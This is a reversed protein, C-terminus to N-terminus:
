PMPIDCSTWCGATVNLEPHQQSPDWLWPLGLGTPIEGLADPHRTEQGQPRNEM